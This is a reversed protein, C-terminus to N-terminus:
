LPFRLEYVCPFAVQKMSSAENLIKKKKKKKKKKKIYLETPGKSNEIPPDSSM